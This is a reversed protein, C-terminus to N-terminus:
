RRSRRGQASKPLPRSASKSAGASSNTLTRHGSSEGGQSPASTKKAEALRKQGEASAEQAAALWQEALLDGLGIPDGDSGIVVLELLQSANARSCQMPQGDAGMVGSWGALVDLALQRTELRQDLATSLHLKGERSLEIALETIQERSLTTPDLGRQAAADFVLLLQDTARSSVGGRAAIREQVSSHDFRFLRFKWGLGYGDEVEVTEPLARFLSPLQIM